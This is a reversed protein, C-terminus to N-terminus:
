MLRSTDAGTTQRPKYFYLGYSADIISCALVAIVAWSLDAYLRNDQFAKFPDLRLAVTLFVAGVLVLLAIGSARHAKGLRDHLAPALDNPTKWALWSGFVAQLVLWVLAIFGLTFHAETKKTLRSRTASVGVGVTIAIVGLWMFVYHLKIGIHKKEGPKQFRRGYIHAAIGAFLLFGGAVYWPGNYKMTDLTDSRITPNAPLIGLAAQSAMVGIAAAPLSTHCNFPRRIASADGIFIRDAVRFRNHQVTGGYHWPDFCSSFPPDPACFDSYLADLPVSYSSNVGFTEVVDHEMLMRITIVYGPGANAVNTEVNGSYSFTQANVSGPTLSYRYYHNHGTFTPGLGLLQPSMLAGAAVIVADHPGLGITTGNELVIESSSVSAVPTDVRLDALTENFAVSRRAMAFNASAVSARDCNPPNICSWMMDTDVDVYGAVIQQASEAVTISVGTRSALDRPSGPKYVAGNANMNGGVFSAIMPATNQGLPAYKYENALNDLYTSSINQSYFLPPVDPGREFVTTPIEISELYRAASIGGPGAGVVYVRGQFGVSVPDVLVVTHQGGNNYLVVTAWVSTPAAVTFTVETKDEPGTHSLCHGGDYSQANNSTATLVSSASIVFGRFTGSLTCNAGDCQLAAGSTSYSAISMLSPVTHETRSCTATYGTGHGVSCFALLTLPPM